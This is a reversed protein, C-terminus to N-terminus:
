AGSGDAAVRVGVEAAGAVRWRHGVATDRGVPVDIGKAEGVTAAPRGLPCSLEAAVVPDAHSDVRPGVVRSGVVVEGAALTCCVGGALAGNCRIRQHKRIPDSM